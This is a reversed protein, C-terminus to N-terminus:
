SMDGMAGGLRFLLGCVALRLLAHEVCQGRFFSGSLELVAGRLLLDGCCRGELFPRDGCRRVCCAVGRGRWRGWAVFLRSLQM